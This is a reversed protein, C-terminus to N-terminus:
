QFALYERLVLHTNSFEEKNIISALKNGKLSLFQLHEMKKFYKLNVPDALRNDDLM